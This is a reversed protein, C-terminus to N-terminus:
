LQYYMTKIGRSPNVAKPQSTGPYKPPLAQPPHPQPLETELAAMQGKEGQIFVCTQPNFQFKTLYSIQVVFLRLAHTTALLAFVDQSVSLDLICQIKKRFGTCMCM